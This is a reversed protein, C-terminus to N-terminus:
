RKPFDRAEYVIGGLEGEGPNELVQALWHM